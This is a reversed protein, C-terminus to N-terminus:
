FHLSKCIFMQFLNFYGFIFLNHWKSWYSQGKVKFLSWSWTMFEVMKFICSHIGFISAYDWTRWKFTCQKGKVKVSSRSRLKDGSLIYSNFMFTKYSTQIQLVEFPIVLLLKKGKDKVKSRSPYGQGQCTVV